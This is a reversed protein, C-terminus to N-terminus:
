SGYTSLCSVWEPKFLCSSLPFSPVPSSSPPLSPFHCTEQIKLTCHSCLCSSSCFSPYVNLVLKLNLCLIHSIILSLCSSHLLRLCNDTYPSHPLFRSTVKILNGASVSSILLQAHCISSFLIISSLSPSVSLLPFLVGSWAKACRNKDRWCCRSDGKHGEASRIYYM